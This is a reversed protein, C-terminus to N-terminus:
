RVVVAPDTQDGKYPPPAKSPARGMKHAAQAALKAVLRLTAQGGAGSAVRRDM